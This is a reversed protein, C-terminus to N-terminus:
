DGPVTADPGAKAEARPTLSGEIWHEGDTWVEKKWIPVVQKLRDIAYHCAAIGDARHPSSVAIAVSAEGIALRGVRHHMAIANIPWRERVEEAIERMKKTAMAPYADYELHDVARGLNSDRVVGVFHSVAGAGPRLVLAHLAEISLPEETIRFAADEGAGGSVPPILAVDDGARVPFDGQVFEENVAYIVSERLAELSPFLAFLAVGVDNATASEPLDRLTVRRTGAAEALSAYLQVTIEMTKAPYVGHGVGLWMGRSLRTEEESPDAVGAEIQEERGGAGDTAAVPGVETFRTSRVEEGGVPGATRAAPGGIGHGMAGACDAVAADGIRGGEFGEAGGEDELARQAVGNVGELVVADGGDGPGEEGVDRGVREWGWGVEDGGDGHGAPSAAQAAVVLGVLDGM